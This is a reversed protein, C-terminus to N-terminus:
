SRHFQQRARDAFVDVDIANEAFLERYAVLGVGKLWDDIDQAM